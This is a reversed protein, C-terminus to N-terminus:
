LKQATCALEEVWSWCVHSRCRSMRCASTMGTNARKLRAELRASAARHVVLLSSRSSANAPSARPAKMHRCHKTSSSPSQHRVRPHGPVGGGRRGQVRAFSSVHVVAQTVVAMREVSDCMRRVMAADRREVECREDGLVDGSSAVGDAGRRGGRGCMRGARRSARECSGKQPAEWQSWMKRRAECSLAPMWARIDSHM